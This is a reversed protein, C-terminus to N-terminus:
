TKCFKQKTPVTEAMPKGQVILAARGVFCQKTCHEGYADVDKHQNDEGLFGDFHDVHGIWVHLDIHSLNEFSFNFLGAFDVKTFVLHMNPEDDTVVRRFINEFLPIELWNWTLVDRKEHIRSLLLEYFESSEM